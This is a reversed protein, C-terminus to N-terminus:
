LRTAPAGSAVSGAAIVFSCAPSASWRWSQSCSRATMRITMESTVIHALDAPPHNIQVGAYIAGGIAASLGAIATFRHTTTTSVDSEKTDTGPPTDPSTSL